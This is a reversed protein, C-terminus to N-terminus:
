VGQSFDLGSKVAAEAVSALEKRNKFTNLHLPEQFTLTIAGQRLQSLVMAFHAGFSMDGWWGYFDAREGDPAHYMVSVPQIWMDQTQAADFFAAFLSSRFPLVRRGDTSTGEPFFLLKHGMAIRESFQSKHRHAHTTKREIFVTGTSRAIPGLVPWGSVDAKSVFYVRQAANLSFIDLWSAHNAVVGGHHQMPIGHVNLRIGLIRLSIRCACKVIRQGTHHFGIIRLMILPVMLGFIVIALASTRLIVLVWGIMTPRTLEPEPLGHWLFM